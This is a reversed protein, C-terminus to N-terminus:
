MLLDANPGCLTEEHCTLPRRSPPQHRLAVATQIQMVHTTGFSNQTVVLTASLYSMYVTAHPQLRGCCVEAFLCGSILVVEAYHAPLIQPLDDEVVAHM